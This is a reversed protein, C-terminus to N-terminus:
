NYGCLHKFISGDHMQTSGEQKSKSKLAYCLCSFGTLGCYLFFGQEFKCQIINVDPTFAFSSVWCSACHAFYKTCINGVPFLQQSKWRTKSYFFFLFFVVWSNNLKMNCIKSKIGSHQPCCLPKSSHRQGLHQNHVHWCHPLQGFHKFLKMSVTTDAAPLFFEAQTLDKKSLWQSRIQVQRSPYVFQLLKIGQQSLSTWRFVNGQCAVVNRNTYRGSRPTHQDTRQHEESLKSKGNYLKLIIIQSNHAM